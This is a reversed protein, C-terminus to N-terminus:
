KGELWAALRQGLVDEDVALSRSQGYWLSVVERLLATAEALRALAADREVAMATLADEALNAQTCWYERNAKWKDREARAEALASQLKRIEDHLNAATTEAIVLASEAKDCAENLKLIAPELKAVKFQAEDRERTLRAVDDRLGKILEEFGVDEPCCSAERNEHRLVDRTLAEVKALLDRSYVLDGDDHRGVLVDLYYETGTDGTRMTDSM